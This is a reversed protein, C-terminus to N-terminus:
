QKHCAGCQQGMAGLSQRVVAMDGAAAATALNKGAVKLVEIISAVQEKKDFFEPKLRSGADSGKPFLDGHMEALCVSHPVMLLSILRTASKERCFLM